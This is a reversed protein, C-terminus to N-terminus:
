SRVGVSRADALGRAYGAEEADNLAQAHRAQMQCLEQYLPTDEDLHQAIKKEALRLANLLGREGGLQVKLICGPVADPGTGFHDRALGVVTFTEGCHFCTWGHPPAQYTGEAKAM